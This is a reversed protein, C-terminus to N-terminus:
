VYLKRAPASPDGPGPTAPNDSPPTSIAMISCSEVMVADTTPTYYTTKMINNIQM